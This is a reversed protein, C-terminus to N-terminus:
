APRRFVAGHERMAERSVAGARGGADPFAGRPSDRGVVHLLRVAGRGPGGPERSQPLPSLSRDTTARRTARGRDHRTAPVLM